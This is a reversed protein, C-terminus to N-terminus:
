AVSFRLFSYELNWYTFIAMEAALSLHLWSSIHFNGLGSITLVRLYDWEWFPVLTTTPMDWSISTFEAHHWRVRQYNLM